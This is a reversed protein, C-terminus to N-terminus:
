GNQSIHPPKMRGHRAFCHGRTQYWVGLPRVIVVASRATGLNRLKKPAKENSAAKVTAQPRFQWAEHKLKSPIRAFGLLGVICLRERRLARRRPTSTARGSATGSGERAISIGSAM